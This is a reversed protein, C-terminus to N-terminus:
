AQGWQAGCRVCTERCRTARRHDAIIEHAMVGVLVCVSFLLAGVLVALAGWMVTEIM